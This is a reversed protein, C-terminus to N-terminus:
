ALMFGHYGTWLAAVLLCLTSTKIPSIKSVHLQSRLPLEPHCAVGEAMKVSVPRVVFYWEQWEVRLHSGNWNLELCSHMAGVTGPPQRHLPFLRWSHPWEKMGQHKTRSAFISMPTDTSFTPAERWLRSIHTQKPISYHVSLGGLLSEQDKDHLSAIKWKGVPRWHSFSINICDRPLIHLSKSDSDPQKGVPFTPMHRGAGWLYIPYLSANPVSLGTEWTKFQPLHFLM